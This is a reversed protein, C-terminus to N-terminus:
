SMSAFPLRVADVIKSEVSPLADPEVKAHFCSQVVSASTLADFPSHLDTAGTALGSFSTADVPGDAVKTEGFTDASVVSKNSTVAVSAPADPEARADTMTTGNGVASPGAPLVALPLPEDTMRRTGACDVEDARANPATAGVVPVPSADYVVDPSVPTDTFPLTNPTEVTLWPADTESVARAEPTPATDYAHVWAAPGDGDTRAEAVVLADVTVNVAGLALTM